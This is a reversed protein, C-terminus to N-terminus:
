KADTVGRHLRITATGSAILTDAEDRIEGRCFALNRTVSEVKGTVTLMGAATQMYQIHLDVTGILEMGADITRAARAMASDLLTALVGGHILGRRNNLEDRQNIQLKVENQIVSTLSVGILDTFPATDPYVEATM